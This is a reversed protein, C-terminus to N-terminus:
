FNPVDTFIQTSELNLSKNETVVNMFDTFSDNMYFYTYSAVLSSIFVIVADRVIFKLPKMEKEVYKMEVIKVLCYLITTLIAFLFLNEM